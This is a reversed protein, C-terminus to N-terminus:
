IELFGVSVNGKTKCGIDLEEALFIEIFSHTFSVSNQISSTKCLYPAIRTRPSGRLEASSKLWKISLKM